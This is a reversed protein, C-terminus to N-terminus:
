MRSVYWTSSFIRKQVSLFHVVCLAYLVHLFICVRFPSEVPGSVGAYRLSSLMERGRVTAIYYESPATSFILAFEKHLGVFLQLIKFNRIL